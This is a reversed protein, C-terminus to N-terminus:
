RSEEFEKELEKLQRRVAMRRVSGMRDIIMRGALHDTEHEFMRAILEEGTETFENGELDQAEITVKAHRKIKGYINPLSLCGEEQEQEGEASVIRPNVYVKRQSPEGTPCATFMNVTIGVQSAALGVGSAKSMLEFMREVLRRLDDDFQEVPTTQERLRPDPYHIIRLASLDANKIKESSNTM